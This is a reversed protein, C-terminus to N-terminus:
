LSAILAELDEKEFMYKQDCYPCTLEARGDEDLLSKLEKKGISILAAEVRERSCNCAYLPITPENQILMSFGDTIKLLIDETSLGDSMMQTISPLAAINKELLSGTEETAEPMLQLIFGGSCIVHGDTDVLVGLGVSTPTQESTAYYYTLDEAIEGSIIPVQGVYPEKLGLDRVVFFTGEGVARKVDLKNKNNPALNVHPNTIYGKVHSSSDSVACLSGMPGDGKFQLSIMDEQGKQMCGMMAAATLSRGLAATVVPYTDHIEHAKQVLDTTDAVFIRISGDFSNARLIKDSM